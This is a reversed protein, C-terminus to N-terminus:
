GKAIVGVLQLVFLVGFLIWFNPVAFGTFGWIFSVVWALLLSVPVLFILEILTLGRHNRRLSFRDPM